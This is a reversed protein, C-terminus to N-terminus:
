FFTLVTDNYVAKKEADTLVRGLKKQREIVASHYNMKVLAQDYEMPNNYKKKKLDNLSRQHESQSRSFASHSKKMQTPKKKASRILGFRLGNWWSRKEAKSYVKKAM